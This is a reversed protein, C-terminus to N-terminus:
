RFVERHSFFQILETTVNCGNKLVLPTVGRQRCTMKWYRDFEIGYKKWEQRFTHSSTPLKMSIKNEPDVVPLVGISPLEIDTQDSIRVAVVDHLSGLQALEKEYGGCRFDSFIMVLSRNKLRKAAGRIALSLLTGPMTQDPVADIKYLLRMAADRGMKPVSAYEVSGGFVVGGIPSANHQAALLVLSAAETATKLRSSNHKKGSGLQMSLSRDVILFVILEREEEYLKIYPKGMRATVNWDISRVDDGYLYNRVGDFEIGRGSYISKYMGSKMADVLNLGAFNLAIAKKTLVDRDHILM